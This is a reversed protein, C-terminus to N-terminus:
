IKQKPLFLPPESDRSVALKKQGGERSPSGLLGVGSRESGWVLCSAFLYLEKQGENLGIQDEPSLTGLM